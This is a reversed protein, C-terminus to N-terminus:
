RIVAPSKVWVRVIVSDLYANVQVIREGPCRLPATAAVGGRAKNDLTRTACGPQLVYNVPTAAMEECSGPPM